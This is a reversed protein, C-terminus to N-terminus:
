ATGPGRMLVGGFTALTCAWWHRDAELKQLPGQGWPRRLGITTDQINNNNHHLAQRRMVRGRLYQAAPRSTRHLQGHVHRRTHPDGDLDDGLALGDRAVIVIVRAPSYSTTYLQMNTIM